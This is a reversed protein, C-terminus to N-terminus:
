RDPKIRIKSVKHRSGPQKIYLVSMVDNRWYDNLFIVFDAMSDPRTLMYSFNADATSGHRGHQLDPKYDKVAKLCNIM